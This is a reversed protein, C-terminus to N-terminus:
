FRVAVGGYVGPYAGAATRLNAGVTLGFGRTLWRTAHAALYLGIGGDTLESDDGVLFGTAGLAAGLETVGKVRTYTAALDIAGGGGGTSGFAPLATRLEMGWAPGFDRRIGIAPGAGWSEPGVRLLELSGTLTWPPQRQDPPNSRQAHATSAVLSSALLAAFAASRLLRTNPMAGM